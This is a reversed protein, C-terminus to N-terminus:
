GAIGPDTTRLVASGQPDGRLGRQMAAVGATCQQASRHPRPLRRGLLTARPGDAPNPQRQEHRKWAAPGRDIAVAAM